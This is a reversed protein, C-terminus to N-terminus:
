RAPVVVPAALPTLGADLAQKRIAPGSGLRQINTVLDQTTADLRDRESQLGAIDYGTTTLRVNQVLWFFALLFAIVIGGLVLGVRGSRRGARVATRSRRRSITPPALTAGPMFASRRGGTGIFGSRPRAGQYIAM